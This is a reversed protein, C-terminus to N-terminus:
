LDKGLHKKFCLSGLWDTAGWDLGLETTAQDLGFFEYLGGSMEGFRHGIIMKLENKAPIEVSNLLDLKHQSSFAEGTNMRLM